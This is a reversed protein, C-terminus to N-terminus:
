RGGSGSRAGRAGPATQRVQMDSRLATCWKFADVASLRDVPDPALLAAIIGLVHMAPLLNSMKQSTELIEMSESSAGHDRLFASTTIQAPALAGAVMGM